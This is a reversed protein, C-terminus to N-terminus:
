FSLPIVMVISFVDEMQTINASNAGVVCENTYRNYLLPEIFFAVNEKTPKYKFGPCAVWHFSHAEILSASHSMMGSGM